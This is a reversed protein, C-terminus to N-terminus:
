LFLPTTIDTNATIIVMCKNFSAGMLPSLTKRNPMTEFTAVELKDHIHAKLGYYQAESLVIVPQLNGKEKLEALEQYLHDCLEKAQIVTSGRSDVFKQPM